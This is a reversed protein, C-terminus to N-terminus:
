ASNSLDQYQYNFRKYFEKDVDFIAKKFETWKDMNLSISKRGNSSNIVLVIETDLQVNRFEVAMDNTIIIRRIFEM